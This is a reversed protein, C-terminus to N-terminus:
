AASPGSVWRFSSYFDRVPMAFVGDDKQDFNIAWEGRRWPNRLWVVDNEKDFQQISYAHNNNIGNYLDEVSVVSDQGKPTHRSGALWPKPGHAVQSLLERTQNLSLGDIAVKETVKGHLALSAEAVPISNASSRFSGDQSPNHAQIRQGIAVELLGPWRGGEPSKAHYLREALTLDRVTEFQGDAFRVEVQGDPLPRFMEKVSTEDKSALTSLMVCSGARGQEVMEPDFNETLLSPAPGMMDAAQRQSAFGRNVKYTAMANEPIGALLFQELDQRTVGSQGEQSCKELQAGQRRLVVAAAAGASLLAPNAMAGDLETPTLAGDGNVDWGEFNERVTAVFAPSGKEEGRASMPVPDYSTDSLRRCLARQYPSWAQDTQLASLQGDLHLYGIAKTLQQHSVEAREDRNVLSYEKLLQRAELPSEQGAEVKKLHETVEVLESNNLRHSVYAQSIQQRLSPNLRVM